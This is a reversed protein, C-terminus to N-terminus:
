TPVQLETTPIHCIDSLESCHLVPSVPPSDQALIDRINTSQGRLAWSQPQSTLMSPLCLTALAKVSYNGQISDKPLGPQADSNPSRLGSM